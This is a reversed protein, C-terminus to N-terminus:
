ICSALNKVASYIRYDDGYLFARLLKFMGNKVDSIKCESRVVTSCHTRSKFWKANTMSYTLM